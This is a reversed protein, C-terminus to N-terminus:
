PLIVYGEKDVKGSNHLALLESWHHGFRKEFHPPDRKKGKWDIGAEFGHAKFINVVTMWNEDIKWVIKGLVLIVFDIALSYNHYSQGGKAYTVIAGPKTRGQQYIADSEAFSRYPKLLLRTFV